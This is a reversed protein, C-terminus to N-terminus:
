NNTHPLSLAHACKHSHALMFQGPFSILGRSQPQKFSFPEMPEQMQISIRVQCFQRPLILLYLTIPHPTEILTPKSTEFAVGLGTTTVGGEAEQKPILVYTILQQQLTRVAHRSGYGMMVAVSELWRSRHAGFEKLLTMLITNMVAVSVNSLSTRHGEARHSSSQTKDLCALLWRSQCDEQRQEECCRSELCTCPGMQHTLHISPIQARTELAQVSLIRVWQVVVGAGNNLIWIAQFQLILLYLGCDKMM